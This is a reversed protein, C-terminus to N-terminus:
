EALVHLAHQRKRPAGSLELTMADRDESALAGVQVLLDHQRAPHTVAGRYIRCRVKLRKERDEGLRVAIAHDDYVALLRPDVLEVHSRELVRRPNTPPGEALGIVRPSPLSVLLVGDVVFGPLERALVIAIGGPPHVLYQPPRAGLQEDDTPVLLRDGLEPVEQRMLQLGPDRAREDDFGPRHRRPLYAFTGVLHHICVLSVFLLPEDVLHEPLDAGPVKGRGPQLPAEHGRGLVGDLEEEDVVVLLCRAPRAVVASPQAEFPLLARYAPLWGALGGVHDILHRRGHHVGPSVDLVDVDVRRKILVDDCRRQSERHGIRARLSGPRRASRPHATAAAVEASRPADAKARLAARM